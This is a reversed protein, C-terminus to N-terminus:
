YVLLKNIITSLREYDSPGFLIEILNGNKDIIYTEPTATVRFSSGYLIDPYPYTYPGVPFSIGNDDIFSKADVDSDLYNVGFVFVGQDGYEDWIRQIELIEIASPESWSAWYNIIVVKDLYDSIDYSKDDYSVFKLHLANDGIGLFPPGLNTAKLESECTEQGFIRLTGSAESGNDNFKIAWDLVPENLDSKLTEDIEGDMIDPISFGEDVREFSGSLKVPDCEIQFILESFKTGTDDIIFAIEGFESVAQWRGARREISNGCSTLLFIIIITLLGLVFICKKRKVKKTM